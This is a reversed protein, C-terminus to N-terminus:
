TFERMAEVARRDTTSKFQPREPQTPAGKWVTKGDFYFTAYSGPPRFKAAGDPPRLIARANRKAILRRAAPEVGIDSYDAKISFADLMEQLAERLRRIQDPTPSNM